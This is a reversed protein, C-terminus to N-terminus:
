RLVGLFALIALLAIMSALPLRLFSPDLLARVTSEVGSPLWDLRHGFLRVDDRPQHAPAM